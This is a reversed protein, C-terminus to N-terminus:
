FYLFIFLLIYEVFFKNKLFFFFKLFIESKMKFEILVFRKPFFKKIIAADSDNDEFEDDDLNHLPQHDENNQHKNSFCCLKFGCCYRPTSQQVTSKPELLFNRESLTNQSQNSSDDLLINPITSSTKEESSSSSHTATTSSAVSNEDDNESYNSNDLDNESSKNSNM